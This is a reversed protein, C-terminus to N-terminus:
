NSTDFDTSYEINKNKLSDLKKKCNNCVLKDKYEFLKKTNGCLVCKPEHKRLIISSGEVFIEIFDKEVIKLQNRIQIPIVVRGLEDIRRVIGKAKLM